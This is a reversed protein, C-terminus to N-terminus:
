SNRISCRPLAYTKIFGDTFYPDGGGNRHRRWPPVRSLMTGMYRAGAMALTAGLGDREADVNAGIHHTVQLTFLALGVGRDYTAAGMWENAEIQWLRVHHRRHASRGEDREYALDQLRDEFYLSSVPARPYPRQLVVSKVIGVASRASLEDAKSWAARGFACQVADRDGILRLNIPDAPIDQATYSLLEEGSRIKRHEHKSWLRPLEGYALALWLLLLTLSTVIALTAWHWPRLATM